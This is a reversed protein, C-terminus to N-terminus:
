GPISGRSLFQHLLSKGPDPCRRPRRRRLRVKPPPEVSRDGIKSPIVMPAPHEFALEPEPSRRLDVRHFLDDVPGLVPFQQPRNDAQWELVSLRDVQTIEVAQGKGVNGLDHARRFGGGLYADM